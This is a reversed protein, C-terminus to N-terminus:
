LPNWEAEKTKKVADVFLAAAAKGAENRLRVMPGEMQDFGHMFGEQSSFDFEDPRPFPDPISVVKYFLGGKHRIVPIMACDIGSSEPTVEQLLSGLLEELTTGYPLSGERFAGNDSACTGKDTEAAKTITKRWVVPDTGPLCSSNFHRISSIIDEIAKQGSPSSFQRLLCGTETDWEEATRVSRYVLSSPKTGKYTVPEESLGVAYYLTGASEPLLSITEDLFDQLPVPNKKGRDAAHDAASWLADALTLGEKGSRLTNALFRSRTIFLEGGPVIEDESTCIILCRGTASLYLGALCMHRARIGDSSPFEWSTSRRLTIKMKGLERNLAQVPIGVKEALASRTWAADRDADLERRIRDQIDTVDFSAAAGGGHESQLADIGGSLYRKKWRTVADKNLEVIAATERVSRGNNLELIIRARSALKPDVTNNAIFELESIQKENLNIKDKHM